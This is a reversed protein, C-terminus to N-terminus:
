NNKPIPFNRHCVALDGHLGLTTLGEHPLHHRHRWLQFTLIADARPWTVKICLEAYKYLLVLHDLHINVGFIM